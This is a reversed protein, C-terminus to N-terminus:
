GRFWAFARAQADAAPELRPRAMSPVAGPAADPVPVPVLRDGEVDYLRLMPGDVVARACFVRKPGRPEVAHDTARHTHGHLVHM